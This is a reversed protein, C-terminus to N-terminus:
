LSNGNQKYDGSVANRCNICQGWKEIEDIGKVHRQEKEQGSVNLFFSIRFIRLILMGHKYLSPFGNQDGVDGPGYNKIKEPIPEMAEM